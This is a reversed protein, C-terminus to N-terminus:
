ERSWVFVARDRRPIMMRFIMQSPGNLHHIARIRNLTLHTVLVMVHRVLIQELFPSKKARNSSFIYSRGNRRVLIYVEAQCKKHLKAGGKFLGKKRRYFQARKLKNSKRINAIERSNM